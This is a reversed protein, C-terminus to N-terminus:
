RSRLACPRSQHGAHDRVRHEGGARALGVRIGLRCVCRLAGAYRGTCAHAACACTPAAQGVCPGRVDMAGLRQTGLLRPDARPQVPVVKEGDTGARWTPRSRASARGARATRPQARVPHAHGRRRHHAKRRLTRRRRRSHRCADCVLATSVGSVTARRLRLHAQPQAALQVTVRVTAPPRRAGGVAVVGACRVLLRQVSLPHPRYHDTGSAHAPESGPHVVYKPRGDDLGCLRDEHHAAHRDKCARATSGRARARHRDGHRAHIGQLVLCLIRAGRAPQRHTSRGAGCAAGPDVFLVCLIASLGLTWQSTAEFYWDRMPLSRTIALWNRHVEFDTSHYTPFLLLKVATSLTLLEWESKLLGLTTTTAEKTSTGHETPGALAPPIVEAAMSPSRPIRPPSMSDIRPSSLPGHLYLSPPRVCPFPGSRARVLPASRSTNTEEACSSADSLFHREINSRKGFCGQRPCGPMELVKAQRWRWQLHEKVVM